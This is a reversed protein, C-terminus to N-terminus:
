SSRNSGMQGVITLFLGIKITLPVWYLIELRFFQKGPALPIVNQQKQEKEGRNLWKVGM